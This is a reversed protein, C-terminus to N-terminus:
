LVELKGLVFGEQGVIDDGNISRIAARFTAPLSTGDFVTGVTANQAIRLRLSYVLSGVVMGNDDIVSGAGSRKGSLAVLLQGAAPGSTALTAAVAKPAAGTPIILTTPEALLPTGAVVRGTNLPLNLGTSFVGGRIRGLSQVRATFTNSVVDLRVTSSTSGAVNLVVRMKGAGPSPNTYTLGRVQVAAAGAAVVSAPDTVTLTQLGATNFLFSFAAVGGEGGTLTIDAPPM